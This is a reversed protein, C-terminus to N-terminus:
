ASVTFQTLINQYKMCIRPLVIHSNVTMIQSAANVVHGSPPGKKLQARRRADSACEGPMACYLIGLKLTGACSKDGGGARRARRIAPIPIGVRVRPVRVRLNRIRIRLRSLTSLFGYRPGRRNSLFTLGDLRFFYRDVASAASCSQMYIQTYLPNTVLM